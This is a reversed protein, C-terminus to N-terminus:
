LRVSVKNSWILRRISLLSVSKKEEWKKSNVLPLYLCANSYNRARNKVKGYIKNIKNSGM